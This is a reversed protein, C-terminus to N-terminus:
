CGFHLWWLPPAPGALPRPEAEWLRSKGVGLRRGTPGPDQARLPLTGGLATAVLRPEPLERGVWLLIFVPRQAVSGPDQRESPLECTVPVAVEPM